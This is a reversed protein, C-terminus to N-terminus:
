IDKLINLLSQEAKHLERANIFVDAQLALDSIEDMRLNAAMSIILQLVGPVEDLHKEQIYGLAEYTLNRILGVGERILMEASHHDLGTVNMFRVVSAEFSRRNVSIPKDQLYQQLVAAFRDRDVPKSIYDDMGSAYCKDADGKMANATVAIITTHRGDEEAERIRRTAEYGDMVPMQCDMFVLDYHKGLCATVAENGDTAIDCDIGHAKLLDIFFHRNLENDEALLVNYIKSNIIVAEKAGPITKGDMDKTETHNLAKVLSDLLEERRFPKCLYWVYEKDKTRASEESLQEKLDMTFQVIPLERIIPIKKRTASLKIGERELLMRDVLVADWSLCEEGVLKSLAESYSEAEIVMAGEEELYSKVINRNIANHDALLVRKSKLEPANHIPTAKVSPDRELIIEFIFRTGKEGPNEVRISGGMMGVLFRCITLGLGTGGFRRSSTSDAQTFPQFFREQDEKKIGIGSDEITMQLSYQSTSKDKLAAELLVYGSDTFKIANGVLNGIVQRLRTPDGKVLRPTDSSLHMNLELGKELASVRFSKVTAEILSRLDFSLKELELKGAEIKSIDLIDNIITLLTDSSARISRIYETQKKTIPTMELLQLFGLIGNMPTRIEHSMNALFFSKALNAAEAENKAKILEEEMAIRESIDLFSANGCIPIGQESYIVNTTALSHMLSGDKKKLLLEGCWRGDVRLHQLMEEQETSGLFVWFLSGIVDEHEYGLLRQFAENIYTIRGQGDTLVIANLATAIAKDKIELEKYKHSLEEAYDNVNKFLVQYPRTLNEKILCIYIFVISTMMLFHGLFNLFGYPGTYLTFSLESLIKFGISAQLLVYINQEFSKKYKWLLYSSLALIGCIIYESWIKFTTLGSGEIFCDPFVGHFISVIILATFTLTARLMRSEDLRKDKNLYRMATLITISETYRTVIWFQTPTNTGHEQFVGMGTYSLTHFLTLIGITLYGIALVTMFNNRSFKRTNWGIGFITMSVAAGALEIFTHLILYNYLSINYMVIFILLIILARLMVPTRKRIIEWM